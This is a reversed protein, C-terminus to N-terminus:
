DGNGRDAAACQEAGRERGPGFWSDLVVTDLEGLEHFKRLTDSMLQLWEGVM